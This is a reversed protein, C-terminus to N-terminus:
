SIVHCFIDPVAAEESVLYLGAAAPFVEGLKDCPLVYLSRGNKTSVGVAVPLWSSRVLGIVRFFADPLTTNKSLADAAALVVKLSM